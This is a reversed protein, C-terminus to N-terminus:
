KKFSDKLTVTRNFVLAGPKSDTDVCFYGLREFQFKDLPKVKAMNPNLFSGQVVILSEPNIEQLWNESGAPDESTFLVDYLRVECTTPEQGPRPQAVWNLVGKPPKKGAATRFGNIYIAATPLYSAFDAFLPAPIINAQRGHALLM